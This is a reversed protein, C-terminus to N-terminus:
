RIRIAVMSLNIDLVHSEGAGSEHFINDILRLMGHDSRASSSDHDFVRVWLGTENFAQVLFATALVYSRGSRRGGGILWHISRFHEQQDKTLRNIMRSQIVGTSLLDSM